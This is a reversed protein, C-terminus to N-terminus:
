VLALSPTLPTHLAHGPTPAPGPGATDQVSLDTIPVSVTWKSIVLNAQLGRVTDVQVAVLCPSLAPEILAPTWSTGEQSPELALTSVTHLLLPPTVLVTVTRRVTLVLLVALGPETGRSVELTLLGAETERRALDAITTLVAPLRVARIFVVTGTLFRRM